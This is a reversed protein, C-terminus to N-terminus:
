AVIELASIRDGALKFQYRLDVPSGPFDGRVHATVITRDDASVMAFPEVSYHYAQSAKRKWARVAEHGHNTIGEDTVAADETFCAAVAEVDGQRDADFYASIPTPLHITM